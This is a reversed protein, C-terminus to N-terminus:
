IDSDPKSVHLSRDIEVVGAIPISGRDDCHGEVNSVSLTRTRTTAVGHPDSVIPTAERGAAALGVSSDV